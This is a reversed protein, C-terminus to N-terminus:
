ASVQCVMSGRHRCANLFCGLKGSSDRTVIVPQRGMYATFFDDPKPVQCEMGVFVWNGEFIYKLELDCIDQRRFVDAHVRFVGDQPRDDILSQIEEARM